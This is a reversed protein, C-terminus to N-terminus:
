EEATCDEIFDLLKNNVNKAFEKGDITSLTERIFDLAKKMLPDDYDKWKEFGKMAASRANEILDALCTGDIMTEEGDAVVISNLMEKRTEPTLCKLYAKIATVVVLDTREFSYENINM